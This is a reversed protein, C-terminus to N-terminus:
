FDKETLNQIEKKLKEAFEEFDKTWNEEEDFEPYVRIDLKNAKTYILINSEKEGSASLLTKPGFTIDKLGLQEFKYKSKLLNQEIEIYEKWIQELKSIKIKYNEALRRVTELDHKWYFDKKEILSQVIQADTINKVKPKITEVIKLAEKRMEEYTKNLELLKDKLKM